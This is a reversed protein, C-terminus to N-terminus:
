PAAAILANAAPLFARAPGTKGFLQGDVYAGDILLLLQDALAEHKRVKMRKALLSLRGRLEGKNRLAVVRAPHAPSPFETAINLFPCGRYKPGAVYQAIWRLQAQLEASPDGAHRKAVDDWREWFAADDRELVAAVLDDKTAFHRYLSTKAVGSKEVVLDVGVARVGEQYFLDNATDLIRERVANKEPKAHTRM